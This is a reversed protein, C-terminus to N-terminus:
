KLRQSRLTEMKITQQRAVALLIFAGVLLFIVLGYATRLGLSDALRGLLLPLLLIATGSALTARASAADSDTTTSLAQALILPYLGAVGLGCVFLGTLGAAPMPAQWYLLYGMAALLLSVNLVRPATFRMVVRSSLWRGVLMGALFVSSALAADARPLGLESELYEAAWFVMCFEVAVVLMLATWYVWYLVPLRAHAAGNKLGPAEPVAERGFVLWLLPAAAIGLGLAGRWGLGTRAFYGVALGALASILSAMVNAESYAVARLQGFQDSLSSSVVVIIFSGLAGMLLSAGVTVLPTRGAMLLLGGVSLGVVGLWLARRRGLRRIVAGGVLGVAIIGVAFASFHYSSVTYTLKLENRLFPTLPGLINLFYGYFSLLGYALWTYRTRTFTNKM